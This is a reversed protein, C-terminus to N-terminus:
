GLATQGQIRVVEVELTLPRSMSSFERCSRRPPRRLRSFRGPKVAM